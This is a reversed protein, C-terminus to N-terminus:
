RRGSWHCMSQAPAIDLGDASGGGPGAGAGPAVEARAAGARAAGTSSTVPTELRKSM